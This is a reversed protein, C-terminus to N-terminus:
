PAATTPAPASGVLTYQVEFALSAGLYARVQYAGATGDQACFARATQTRPGDSWLGVFSDVLTADRYCFIGWLAGNNVNSARFFTYIRSASTPFSLGPDVPELKDDIRSALTLFELRAAPAPPVASPIPTLLADPVSAALTATPTVTPSATPTPSAPQTPELTPTPTPGITPIPATASATPEVAPLPPAQSTYLAIGITAIIGAVSVLTWRGASRSAEERLIYYPARRSQNFYRIANRLAFLILAVGALLLVTAYQTLLTQM